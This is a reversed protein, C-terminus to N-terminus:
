TILICIFTKPFFYNHGHLRSPLVVDYQHGVKMMKSGLQNTRTPSVSDQEVKDDKPARAEVVATKEIVVAEPCDAYEYGAM